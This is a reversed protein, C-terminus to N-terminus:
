KKTVFSARRQFAFADFFWAHIFDTFSRAAITWGKKDVNVVVEPDDRGDLRIGWHCVGQNESMFYLIKVDDNWEFGESGKGLQHIAVVGPQNNYKRLLDIADNLSYYEFVSAPFKIGLRSEIEHLIAPSKESFSPRESIFQFAAQHYRFHQQM